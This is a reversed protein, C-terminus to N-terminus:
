GCGAAFLPQDKDIAAGTRFLKRGLQSLKLDRCEHRVARQALLLTMLGLLRGCRSVVAHDHRGAHPLKADFHSIDLLVYDGRV